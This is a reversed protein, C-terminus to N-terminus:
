LYENFRNMFNNNYVENPFTLVLLKWDILDKVDELVDYVYNDVDFIIDIADYHLSESDFHINIIKMNDDEDDNYKNILSNNNDYVNITIDTSLSYATLTLEDGWENNEGIKNIYMDINDVFDKFFEKHELIYSICEKKIDIFYDENKFLSYSIARFQCNGDGIIDHRKFLPYKKIIDM